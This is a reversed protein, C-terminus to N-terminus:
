EIETKTINASIRGLKDEATEKKNLKKAFLVINSKKYETVLALIYDNGTVNAENKYISNSKVSNLWANFKAKEITGNKPLFLDTKQQGLIDVAFIVYNNQGKGTCVSVTSHTKYYDMYTYDQLPAFMSGDNINNGFVTIFKDNGTLYDTSSVFVSGYFSKEKFSNHNKYFSNNEGKFIPYDIDTGSIEIWGCYDPNIKKLRSNKESLSLKPNSWISNIQEVAKKQKTASFFYNICYCSSIILAVTLLLIFLYLTFKLILKPKNEANRIDTFIHFFPKAHSKVM